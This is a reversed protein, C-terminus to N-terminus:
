QAQTRDRVGRMFDKKQGQQQALIGGVTPAVWPVATTIATNTASGPEGLMDYKGLLDMTTDGVAYGLGAGIAGRVLNPLISHKFVKTAPVDKVDGGAGLTYAPSGTLVNAVNTVPSVVGDAAFKVLTKLLEKNM